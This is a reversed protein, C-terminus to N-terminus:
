LKSTALNHMRGTLVAFDKYDRHHEKIEENIKSVIFLAEDNGSQARYYNIKDGDGKDTWLKKPKRNQNNKIVSNAADLIHGTSRYNQEPNLRILKMKITM